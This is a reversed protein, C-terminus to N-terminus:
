KYCLVQVTYEVADASAKEFNDQRSVPMYDTDHLRLFKEILAQDIGFNVNQSVAGAVQTLLYGYHGVSQQVLPNFTFYSYRFLGYQCLSLM